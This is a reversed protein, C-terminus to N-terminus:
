GTVVGLCQMTCSSSTSGPQFSLGQGEKSFSFTYRGTITPWDASDATAPMDNLVDGVIQFVGLQRCRLDADLQSEGISREETFVHSLM